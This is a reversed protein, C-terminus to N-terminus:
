ETHMANNPRSESELPASQDRPRDPGPYMATAMSTLYIAYLVGWVICDATAAFAAGKPMVYALVIVADILVLVILGM